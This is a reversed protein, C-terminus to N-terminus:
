VSRPKTFGPWLGEPAPGPNHAAACVVAPNRHRQGRHIQHALSEVVRLRDPRRATGGVFSGRRSRSRWPLREPSPSQRPPRESLSTIPGIIVAAAAGSTRAPWPSRSSPPTRSWVNVGRLMAADRDEAVARRPKLRVGHTSLASGRLRDRQHDSRRVCVGRGTPAVLGLFTCHGVLGPSRLLHLSPM